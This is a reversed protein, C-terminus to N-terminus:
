RMSSRSSRRPRRRWSRSWRARRPDGGPTDNVFALAFAMVGGSARDVDDTARARRHLATDAGAEAAAADISAHEAHDDTTRSRRSRSSAAREEDTFGLGASGDHDAHWARIRASGRRPVRRASRAAVTRGAPRHRRPRARLGRPGGPRHAGGARADRRRAGTRARPDRHPHVMRPGGLMTPECSARSTTRTSCRRACRSTPWRRGGVRPDRRCRPAAARCARGAARRLRLRVASLWDLAARAEAVSWAGNVDGVLAIDPGIADRLERIADVDDDISRRARKVKLTRPEDAVLSRARVRM